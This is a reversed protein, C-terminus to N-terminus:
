LMSHVIGTIADMGRRRVTTEGNGTREAIEAWTLKDFMRLSVIEQDRPDLGDLALLVRAQSEAAAALRVPSESEAGFAQSDVGADERKWDRRERSHHRLKTVLKNRMIDTLWHGFSDAGRNEFSEIRKCVEFLASQMVDETDFRTRANRPIRGHLLARMLVYHRQYLEDWARQDGHSAAKVLEITADPAPHDNM